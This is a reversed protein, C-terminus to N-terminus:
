SKYKIILKKNYDSTKNDFCQLLTEESKGLDAIKKALGTLKEKLDEDIGENKSVSTLFSELASLTGGGPNSSNKAVDCQNSFDALQQTTASGIIKDMNESLEKTDIGAAALILLASMMKMKAAAKLDDIKKCTIDTVSNLAELDEESSCGRHEMYDSYLSEYDVSTDDSSLGMLSQYEIKFTELSGVKTRSFLDFVTENFFKTGINVMDTISSTKSTKAPSISSFKIGATISETGISAVM